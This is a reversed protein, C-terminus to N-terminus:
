NTIGPTIKQFKNLVLSIIKLTKRTMQIGDPVGAGTVRQRYQTLNIFLCPMMTVWDNDPFALRRQLM